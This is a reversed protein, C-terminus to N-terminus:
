KESFSIPVPPLVLFIDLDFPFLALNVAFLLVLLKTGQEGVEHRKRHHTTCPAHHM